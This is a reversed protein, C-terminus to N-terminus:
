MKCLVIYEMKKPNKRTLSTKTLGEFLATEFKQDLSNSIEKVRNVKGM